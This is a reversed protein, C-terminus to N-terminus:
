ELSLEPYDTWKEIKKTITRREYNNKHRSYYWRALILKNKTNKNM